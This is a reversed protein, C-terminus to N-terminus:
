VHQPNKRREREAREARKWNIAYVAVANGGHPTRRKEQSLWELRIAERIAALVTMRSLRTATCFDAISIAAPTSANQAPLGLHLQRIAVVTCIKWAPASLVSLAASALGSYLSFPSWYYSSQLRTPVPAKAEAPGLLVKRAAQNSNQLIDDVAQKCEEASFPAFRRGSM